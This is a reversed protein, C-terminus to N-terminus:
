VCNGFSEPHEELHLKLSFLASLTVGSDIRGDRVHTWLKELPISHCRIEEMPDLQQPGVSRCQRILVTFLRHTMLAPNPYITSLLEPYLGAYGTEERLERAAAALPDEDPELIGGPLELSLRKTGFRFQQVLLIEETPTLAIVQVCNPCELVSFDGERGDMPHICHERYAKFIPVDAILQRRTLKWSAPPHSM